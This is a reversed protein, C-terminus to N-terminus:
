ISTRDASKKRAAMAATPRGGRDPNTPLSRISSPTRAEGCAKHIHPAIRVVVTRPTRANARAPLMIKQFLADTSPSIGNRDRRPRRPPTPAAGFSIPNARARNEVIDFAGYVIREATSKKGEYMISNMFKTLVVDGYKADPIIERKEASHRRSM